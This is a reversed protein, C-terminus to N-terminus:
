HFRKLAVGHDEAIITGHFINIGDNHACTVIMAVRKDLLFNPKVRPSSVNVRLLQLVTAAAFHAWVYEIKAHLVGKVCVVHKSCLGPENAIHDQTPEVAIRRKPVCRSSFPGM